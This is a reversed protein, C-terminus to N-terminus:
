VAFHIGATTMARTGSCPTVCFDCNYAGDVGALPPELVKTEGKGNM